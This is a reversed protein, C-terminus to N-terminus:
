RFWPQDVKTLICAEGQDALLRDLDDFSLYADGKMGWAKGWSNRLTVRKRGPDVARLCICHGGLRDGTVHIYGSGDPNEMGEFWWVGLVVPAVFSLTRLVDDLDLAWHYASIRGLQQAAQAGALVSTGSYAEGPYEDLTQALTYIERARQETMAHRKPWCALDHSIGFGVCNHVGIGDAVYSQDGTVELNYVWGGHEEREVSRVRRWHASETLRASRNSGGGLGWGVVYRTQRTAAHRNISPAEARIHPRLGLGTAIAHMDLALRRCVSIGTVETRRIHGDGAIWGDLLARLYDSSGTAAHASLHKDGHKSTGPVLAAFLRRWPKGYLVVNISGNPREQIRATVDLASKILAVTEAVLTEREHRGFSWVVKNETVHGEASYLGLLRGLAPTRVLLSPLPAVDTLVGGTNVVGSVVGRFGRLDVIALADIPRDDDHIYRTVAVEDANTLRKAAVYGRATLVPHEPTCRLTLHGDCEVAALSEAWRAVLRTVAGVRGEATVVEDLLRIEDIRRQSGDAMRIHTDAPFCAGEQGQDLHTRNRWAKKKLQPQLLFHERITWELNRVDFRPRWDFTHAM